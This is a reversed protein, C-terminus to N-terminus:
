GQIWNFFGLQELRSRLQQREGPSPHRNPLRVPGVDVGLFTMVAKSAGLYSFNSLLDILEVSRRQMTRATEMDGRDFARRLEHYIPAAFNYSSGVAGQGGLSLAALLWEDSGWLVDFRGGQAQLCQQYAMMNSNTFKLGALTPIREVAKGLFEPMSFHVSTMSPIDYFYFPLGPAATAIEACCAILLDVSAPKFYSPAVASVALAGLQQAQTALTRADALCNSGVHVVLRLATGRAVESWRQALAQREALTLSHSEGTSGGLFVTNIGSQLLHEAQKEVVALNLQGDPHFPTHIAPVFGRLKVTM